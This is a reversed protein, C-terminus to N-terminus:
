LGDNFYITILRKFMKRKLWTKIYLQIDIKEMIMINEEIMLFKYIYKLQGLGIRLFSKSVGYWKLNFFTKYAGFLNIVPAM